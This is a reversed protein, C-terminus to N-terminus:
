RHYPHNKSISWVRYTQEIILIPVIGHPLTMPSLSWVKYAKKIVEECLGDTGGVLFNIVRSSEQWQSYQKFLDKTSWRMGGKDLAINLGKGKTAELLKIGEEKIIKDSSNLKNARNSPPVTMWDVDMSRDFRKAYDKFALVTWPSKSGSVSIININM